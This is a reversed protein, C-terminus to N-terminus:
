FGQTYESPIGYGLIRGVTEFDINELEDDIEREQESDYAYYEDGYNGGHDNEDVHNDGAHNEGAHNEGYLGEM